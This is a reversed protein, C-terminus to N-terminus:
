YSHVHKKFAEEKNGNSSVGFARPMNHPDLLKMRSHVRFALFDEIELFCVAGTM